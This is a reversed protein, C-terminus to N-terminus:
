QKVTVALSRGVCGEAAPAEQFLDQVHAIFCLRWVSIFEGGPLSSVSDNLAKRAPCLTVAAACNVFM